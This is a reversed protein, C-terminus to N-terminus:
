EMYDDRSLQAQNSLNCRRPRKPGPINYKWCSGDDGVVFIWLGDDCCSQRSDDFIKTPTFIVTPNAPIYSIDGETAWNRDGMGTLAYKSM